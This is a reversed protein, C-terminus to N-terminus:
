VLHFIGKTMLSGVFAALSLLQRELFVEWVM